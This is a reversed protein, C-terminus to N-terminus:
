YSIMRPWVYKLSTILSTDESKDTKDGTANLSVSIAFTLEWQHICSLIDNGKM